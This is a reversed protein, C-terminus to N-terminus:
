QLRLQWDDSKDNVTTVRVIASATRYKHATSNKPVTTELEQRQDPARGRIYTNYDYRGGQKVRKRRPHGEEM